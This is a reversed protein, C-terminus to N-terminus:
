QQHDAEIEKSLIAELAYELRGVCLLFWIIRSLNITPISNEQKADRREKGRMTWKTVNRKTEKLELFRDAWKQFGIYKPPDTIKRSRMTWSMSRLLIM